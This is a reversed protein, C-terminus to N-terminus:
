SVVPVTRSSGPFSPCPQFEHAPVTRRADRSRVSGITWRLANLIEDGVALRYGLLGHQCPRRGTTISTLACATTTPAVSTIARDIGQAGSLTPALASRSRLQEWGLGDVVLVVVQQAHHASAPLWDPSEGGHDSRGLLAPVLNAICAGDYDPITLAPPSRLPSSVSM